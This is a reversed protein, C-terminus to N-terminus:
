DEDEEWNLAFFDDTINRRLSDFMCLIIRREKEVIEQPLIHGLNGTKVTHTEAQVGGEASSSGENEGSNASVNKSESNNNQPFEKYTSNSTSNSNSSSTSTTSGTSDEKMTYPALPEYDFQTTDYLQNLEDARAYLRYKIASQVREKSYVLYYNRYFEFLMAYLEQQGGISFSSLFSLEDWGEIEAFLSVDYDKVKGNKYAM